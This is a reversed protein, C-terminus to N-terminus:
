REGTRRLFVVFGVYVAAIGFFLVTLWSPDDILTLVGVFAALVAIGLGGLTAFFTM